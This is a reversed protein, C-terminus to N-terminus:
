LLDRGQQDALAYRVCQQMAMGRQFHDGSVDQGTDPDLDVVTIGLARRVLALVPGRHLASTAKLEDIMERGAPAPGLRGKTALVHPEFNIEDPLGRDVAVVVSEEASLWRTSWGVAAQHSLSAGGRSM